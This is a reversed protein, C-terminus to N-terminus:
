VCPSLRQKDLLMASLHCSAHPMDKTLSTKILQMNIDSAGRSDRM